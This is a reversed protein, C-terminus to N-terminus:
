RLHAPSVFTPVRSRSRSRLAHSSPKGESPQMAVVHTVPARGKKEGRLGTTTDQKERFATKQITKQLRDRAWVPSARVFM